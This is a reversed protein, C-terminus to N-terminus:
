VENNMTSIRIEKGNNNTRRGSAGHFARGVGENHSGMHRAHGSLTLEMM